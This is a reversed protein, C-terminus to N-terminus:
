FEGGFINGIADSIIKEVDSKLTLDEWPDTALFQTPRDNVPRSRFKIGEPTIAIQCRGRDAAASGTDIIAAVYDGLNNALSNARTTRYLRASLDVVTGAPNASARVDVISDHRGHNGEAVTGRSQGFTMFACQGFFREFVTPTNFGLVRAATRQARSIVRQMSGRQLRQQTGGGGTNTSLIAGGAYDVINLLNGRDHASAQMIWDGDQLGPFNMNMHDHTTWDSDNCKLYLTNDYGPVNDVTRRTASAGVPETPIEVMSNEGTIQWVRGLMNAPIDVGFCSTRATNSGQVVLDGIQAGPLTTLNHNSADIRFARNPSLSASVVDAVTTFPVSTFQMGAPLTAQPAPNQFFVVDSMSVGRRTFAGVSNVNWGSGTVFRNNLWLEYRITSPPILIRVGVFNDPNIAGVAPTLWNLVISNRDDAHYERRRFNVGLIGTSFNEVSAGSSEIYLIGVREQHDSSVTWELVKNWGQMNAVTSSQSSMFENASRTAISGLGLNSHANSQQTSNLPAITTQVANVIRVRDAQNIENSQIPDQIFDRFASEDLEEGIKKPEGLGEPPILWTEGNMKTIIQSKGEEAAPLNNDKRKAFSVSSDDRWNGVNLTEANIPTGEVHVLGEDRYIKVSIPPEGKIPEGTEDVKILKRKGLFEAKRDEFKM